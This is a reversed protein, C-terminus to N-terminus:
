MRSTSLWSGDDRQCECSGYETNRSAMPACRDACKRSISETIYNYRMLLGGCPIAVLLFAAVILPIRYWPPIEKATLTLALIILGPIISFIGPFTMITSTLLMVSGSVILPIRYKSYNEKSISRSRLIMIPGIIIGLPYLLLGVAYSVGIITVLVVARILLEFLRLAENPDEPSQDNENESM